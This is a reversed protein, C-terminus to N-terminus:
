VSLRAPGFRLTIQSTANKLPVVEAASVGRIKVLIVPWQQFRAVANPDDIVTTQDIFSRKPARLAVIIYHVSLQWPPEARIEPLWDHLLGSGAICRAM